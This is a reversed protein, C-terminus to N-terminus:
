IIVPIEFGLGVRLDRYKLDNISFLVSSELNIFVLRLRLGSEIINFPNTVRSHGLLNGVYLPDIVLSRDGFGAFLTAALYYIDYKIFLRPMVGFGLDFDYPSKLLNLDPIMMRGLNFGFGLEFGYYFDSIFIPFGIQFYGQFGASFLPSLKQRLSENLVTGSTSVDNWLVTFDDLSGIGFESLQDFIVDNLELAQKTTEELQTLFERMNLGVRDLNKLLKEKDLKRLELLFKRLDHTSNILPELDDLNFKNIGNDVQSAKNQNKRYFQFLIALNQQFSDYLNSLNDEFVNLRPLFNGQFDRLIPFLRPSMLKDLVTGTEKNFLYLSEISIQTTFGASFYLVKAYSTSFFLLFLIIFILFRKM